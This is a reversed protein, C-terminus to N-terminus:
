QVTVEAKIAIEGDEDAWRRLKSADWASMKVGFFNSDVLARFGASTVMSHIALGADARPPADCSIVCSRRVYPARVQACLDKYATHVIYVAISLKEYTVAAQLRLRWEYGAHAVPETTSITVNQKKRLARAALKATGEDLRLEAREHCAAAMLLVRRSWQPFASAVAAAYAPSLRRLMVCHALSDPVHGMQLTKDAYMMAAYVVTSEQAVLTGARSYSAKDSLLATFVEEPLDLMRERAEDDPLTVELDHLGELLVHRAELKIRPIRDLLGSPLAYLSSAAHRDAIKHRILWEQAATLVQPAGLEDAAKLAAIFRVATMGDSLQNGHYVAWLVDEVGGVEENSDACVHIRAPLGKDAWRRLKAEMYSSSLKSADWASMTVGFFDREGPPHCGASKLTRRIAPGADARPPAACSIVCFRIVYPTTVQTCLHKYATHVIHVATSLGADTVAAQLRLHWECGAYAIRDSTLITISRKERMARTALAGVSGDLRLHAHLSITRNRISRWTSINGVAALLQEDGEDSVEDATDTSERCAAAMAMVTATWCHALWDPVHEAQLTKDAYFMATYAITSEHAVLTTDDSLLAAFVEEPLDLMRKSTGVGTLTVELDRLGELLEQQAGAKVPEPVCDLLGKPLAYLADAASRNSFKYTGLWEQAATLVRAAGLEDAAKLAALCRFFITNDPLTNDHYLAWLVDEVGAVEESSDARVHIRAPIEKAAWRRLITKM